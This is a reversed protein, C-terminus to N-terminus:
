KGRAIPPFVDGDLRKRLRLTVAVATSAGLFAAIGANTLPTQAIIEAASFYGAVLSVFDHCARRAVSRSRSVTVILIAGAFAGILADADLPHAILLAALSTQISQMTMPTLPSFTM